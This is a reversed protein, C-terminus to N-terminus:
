LAEVQRLHERLKPLTKAAWAKLEPDDVTQSAQQFMKVAERHAKLQEQVYASDFAEGRANSLRDFCEQCKADMHTPITYGKQQALAMLEQNAKTHDQIMHEAFRKVDAKQAREQALQSSKVEFMGASAAKAVFTGADLKQNSKKDDASVFATGCLLAVAAAVAVCRAQRVM